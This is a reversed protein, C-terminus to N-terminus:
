HRKSSCMKEGDITVMAAGWGLDPVDIVRM